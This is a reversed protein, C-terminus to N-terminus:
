DGYEEAGCDCRTRPSYIEDCVHCVGFKGYNGVSFSQGLVVATIDADGPEWGLKIAAIVAEHATVGEQVTGAEDDETYIWFNRKTVSSGKV